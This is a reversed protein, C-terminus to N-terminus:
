LERTTELEEQTTKFARWSEVTEVLGAHERAIESYRNPDGAISPDGMLSTLEEFRKEVEDLQSFM